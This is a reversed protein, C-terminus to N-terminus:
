KKKKKRLVRKCDKIMADPITAITMFESMKLLPYMFSIYYKPDLIKAKGNQILIPYPLMGANNRGIKKTFSRTRKSLKAGILVSGNELKQIFVVKKNNKIRELLDDGSAIEIMDQYQPMAKMFQYKSLIQFKLADKSNIAKPFAKVIKALLTKAVKEDFDDQLFGKSIYLPNTININKEKTDILVRLTAMFGRSDKNAMALLSDDTFVVSLLTKKKNVPVTTIVTFGANKLKKEVEKTEIFESRLYASIRGKTVEGAKASELSEEKQELRHPIYNPPIRKSFKIKRDNDISGEIVIAKPPSPPTPVTPITITTAQILTSLIIMLGLSSHLKIMIHM